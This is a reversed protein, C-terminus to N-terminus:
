IPTTQEAPVAQQPRPINDLVEFTNRTKGLPIDDKKELDKLLPDVKAPPLIVWRIVDGWDMETMSHNDLEFKVM